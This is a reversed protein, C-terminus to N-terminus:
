KVLGKFFTRMEEVPIELSVAGPKFNNKWPAEEHTLERLRWASYQGYIQQVENLLDMQQVSFVNADFDTPFPISGSGHQKYHHYVSPVVPGHTWAEIQEDFLPRDFVALHFGQAYYVLKQLKLNSVLDGADENAQALFFKAADISSAM